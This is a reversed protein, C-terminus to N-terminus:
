TTTSTPAPTPPTPSASASPGDASPAGSANPLPDDAFADDLERVLADVTGEDLLAIQVPDIPRASGDPLVLNWRKVGLAIAAIKFAETGGMRGAQRIRGREGYGFLRVVDATDVSHPTGPCRCPGLEAPRTADPDVYNSTM